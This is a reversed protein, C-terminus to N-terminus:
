SYELYKEIINDELADDGGISKIWIGNSQKIGRNLNPAIRTNKKVTILETHKFREKNEELWNKCIEVTNDTSCDDSIIL